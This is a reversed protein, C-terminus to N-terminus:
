KHNSSAEKVKAIRKNVKDIQREISEKVRDLIAVRQRYAAPDSIRLAEAEQKDQKYRKKDDELRKQLDKLEQKEKKLYDNHGTVPSSSQSHDNEKDEIDDLLKAFTGADGKKQQNKQFNELMEKIQKM